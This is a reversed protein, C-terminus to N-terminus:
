RGDMMKFPTPSIGSHYIGERSSKFHVGAHIIYALFKYLPPQISQTFVFFLYFPILGNSFANLVSIAGVLSCFCFIIRDIPIALNKYLWYM